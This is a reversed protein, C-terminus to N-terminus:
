RGFPTNFTCLLSSEYDLEVRFYGKTVDLLIKKRTMYYHYYKMFSEVITINVTYIGALTRSIWVFDLKRRAMLLQTKKKSTYVMSNVWNTLVTVEVIVDDVIM